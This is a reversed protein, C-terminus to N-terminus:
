FGGSQALTLGNAFGTQKTIEANSGPDRITIEASSRQISEEVSRSIREGPTMVQPVFPAADVGAAPEGPTATLNVDASLGKIGNWLSTFPSILSKLGSFVTKGLDALKELMFGLIQFPPFLIKMWKWVFAAGKKIGAVFTDWHKVILVIVAILAAIGLIILGIPTAAFVANMVAWAATAGKSVSTAALTAGTWALVAGKSILMTANFLIIAANGALVITKLIILVGIFISFVQISSKAITLLDDFNDVIFKLGQEMKMGIMERNTANWLRFKEIMQILTPVLPMIVANRLGKLSMFLSDIRDGLEDVMAAQKETVTGNMRMENRMGEIAETSERAINVFNTAGRGFAAQSLAAQTNPDKVRRMADIYMEFAQANDKVALMQRLLPRDTKKLFSFLAGGGARAEGLTRNFKDMANTFSEQDIGNQKAVFSWEQFKDIPFQLRRTTDHLASIEDTFSKIQFASLAAFASVGLFTRRGATFLTGFTSDVSRNLSSLGSKTVRFFRNVNNQMKSVPATVRDIAKFVAEVSFRGAM